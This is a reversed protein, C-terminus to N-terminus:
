RVGKIPKILAGSLVGAIAVIIFLITYSQSAIVTVAAIIPVIVQPLSNAINFVGMDKGRDSQSPLVETLLAYDVALYIGFGLGFLAAAVTAAGWTHFFALLFMSIGVVFGSVMVFIKRRQIRDSIFGSLLACVILIIGYITSFTTYHTEAADHSDGLASQFYGVLFVTVAASPIIICFRTIWAWGFDPYKAPSIWFSALFKKLNFAPKFSKPLQKDPLTVALLIIVVLFIAAIVYYSPQIQSHLIKKVLLTSGLILGLPFGLGIYASVSARQRRPVQDPVVAIVAALVVNNAIQYLTWGVLLMAFTTAQATLILLAASVIVGIVLWPRRRGWRATTRDSLAGAIPNAVLGFFSGIGVIIALDTNQTVANPEFGIIQNLLILGTFPFKAMWVAVNALLFLVQFIIGVSQTPAQLAEPAETTSVGASVGADNSLTSDAM